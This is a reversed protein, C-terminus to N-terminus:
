PLCLVSFKLRLFVYCNNFISKSMSCGIHWLFYFYFVPLLGLQFFFFINQLNLFKTKLDKHIINKFSFPFSLLSNSPYDINLQANTSSWLIISFTIQDWFCTEDYALDIVTIKQRAEHSNKM